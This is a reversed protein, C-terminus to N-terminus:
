GALLECAEAAAIGGEFRQQLGDFLIERGEAQLKGGGAAGGPARRDHHAVLVADIFCDLAKVQSELTVQPHAGLM